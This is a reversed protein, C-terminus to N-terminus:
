KSGEDEPPPISSVLSELDAVRIWEGDDAREMEDIVGGCRYNPVLDYRPVKALLSQIRADPLPM